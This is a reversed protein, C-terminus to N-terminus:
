RERIDDMVQEYAVLMGTLFQYESKNKSKKLMESVNVYHTLIDDIIKNKEM